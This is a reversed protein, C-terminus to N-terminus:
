VTGFAQVIAKDIRPLEDALFQQWFRQVDDEIDSLFMEPKIDQSVIREVLHIWGQDSTPRDGAFGPINRNELADFIAQRTSLDGPGLILVLKLIPAEVKFQLLLIRNPPPTWGTGAQQFPLDHWKSSAFSLIKRQFWSNIFVIPKPPANQNSPTNQDPSANRVLQKVLEYAETELAPRHEYILDLAEKHQLYIDRCLKAIESDQMLHRNILTSYHQMLTCVEPQLTSRYRDCVEGILDAVKRYSYVSWHEQDVEGYPVIGQPTLFVFIQRYNPFEQQVIQRYRQLQNSHEGSDVKNEIACVTQSGPSVLLIDINKWERRVKTDTLTAVDIEIPSVTANDAELLLQKLFTKLFIDRLKHSASPNLLFALFHSHRIEQRVMGVAEFINFQNLLSELRELDANNVVFQELLTKPDPPM